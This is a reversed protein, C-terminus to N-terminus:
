LYNFSPTFVLNINFFIFSLIVTIAFLENLQNYRVEYRTTRAEIIQDKELYEQQALHRQQDSMSDLHERVMNQVLRSDEESLYRTDKELVDMRIKEYFEKIRPYVNSFERLLKKGEEDLESYMAISFDIESQARVVGDGVVCCAMVLALVSLLVDTPLGINTVSGYARM